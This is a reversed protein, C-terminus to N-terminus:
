IVYFPALTDENHVLTALPKRKAKKEGFKKRFQDEDLPNGGMFYRDECTDYSAKTKRASCGTLKKHKALYHKSNFWKGCPGCKHTKNVNGPSYYQTKSTINKRAMYIDHNIDVKKKMEPLPVSKRQHKHQMHQRLMEKDWFCVYCIVCTREDADAASLSREASSLTDGTSEFYPQKAIKCVPSSTSEATVSETISSSSSVSEINEVNESIMETPLQHSKSQHKQLFAITKFKMFCVTCQTSPVKQPNSEKMMKKRCFMKVATYSNVSKEMELDVSKEMELWRKLNEKYQSYKIPSQNKNMEFIYRRRTTDSIKKLLDLDLDQDSEVLELYQDMEELTHRRLRTVHSGM